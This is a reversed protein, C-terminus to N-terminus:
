ILAPATMKVGQLQFNRYFVASLMRFTKFIQIVTCPVYFNSCKLIKQLNISNKKIFNRIQKVKRTGPDPDPNRRWLGPQIRIRGPDPVSVLDLFNEIIKIENPTKLCACRSGFCQFCASGSGLLGFFVHIWVWFCFFTGVQVTGSRM